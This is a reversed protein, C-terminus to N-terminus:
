DVLGKARLASLFVLADQLVTAPPVHFEAAVQHAIDKVSRRGDMLEWIRAGTANLGRLMRGAADLLVFDRGLRSAQAGEKPKPIADEGASM